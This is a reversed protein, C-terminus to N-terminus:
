LTARVKLFISFVYRTTPTRIEMRKQNPNVRGGFDSQPLSPRSTGKPKLLSQFLKEKEEEARFYERCEAESPLNEDIGTEQAIDRMPFHEFRPMDEGMDLSRGKSRARRQCQSYMDMEHDFDNTDYDYADDDYDIRRNSLYEKRISEARNLLEPNKSNETIKPRYTVVEPPVPQSEFCYDKLHITGGLHKAMFSQYYLTDPMTNDPLFKLVKRSKVSNVLPEEECKLTLSRHFDKFSAYTVSPRSSSWRCLKGMASPVISGSRDLTVGAYIKELRAQADTKVQRGGAEDDTIYFPHFSQRPDSGLGTEIVFTYEQGRILSLEPALLGNVYFATGDRGLGQNGHRPTAPGLHVYLPQAGSEGCGIDPVRWDQGKVKDTPRNWPKRLVPRSPRRQVPRTPKVVSPTLVSSVRRRPQDM